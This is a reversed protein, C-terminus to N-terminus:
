VMLKFFENEYRLRRKEADEIQSERRWNVWRRYCEEILDPDGILEAIKLRSKGENLMRFIEKVKEERTLQSKLEGKIKKIKEEAARRMFESPSEGLSKATERIDEMLKPTLRLHLIETLSM